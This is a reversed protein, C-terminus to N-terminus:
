QIEWPFCPMEDKEYAAHFTAKLDNLTVRKEFFAHLWHAMRENVEPDADHIRESLVNEEETMEYAEDM